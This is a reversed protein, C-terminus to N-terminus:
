GVTTREHLREKNNAWNVLLAMIRTIDAETANDIIGCDDGFPTLGTLTGTENSIIGMEFGIKAHPGTDYMVSLSYEATLLTLARFIGDGRTTFELDFFTKM